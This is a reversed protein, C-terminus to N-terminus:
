EKEPEAPAGKKAAKKKPAKKAAKKKAAAKKEAAKKKKEAVTPALNQVVEDVVDGLEKRWGALDGKTFTGASVMRCVLGLVENRRPDNKELLTTKM